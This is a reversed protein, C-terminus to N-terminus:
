GSAGAEEEGRGQAEGQAREGQGVRLRRVSERELSLSLSGGNSLGRPRADRKRASERVMYRKTVDCVRPTGKEAKCIYELMDRDSLACWEQVRCIRKKILEDLSIDLPTAMGEAYTNELRSAVCVCVPARM